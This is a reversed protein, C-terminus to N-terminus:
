VVVNIGGSGSLETETKDKWGFNKLAFIAGTPSHDGLRKEYSNEVRLYAEKIPRLFEDKESYSKITDVDCGLFLALGTITPREYELRVTEKEPEDRKWKEKDEDDLCLKELELWQKYQHEYLKNVKTVVHGDCWDFYEDIRKTLEEVDQFKLPRGAPM